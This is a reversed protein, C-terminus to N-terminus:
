IANFAADFTPTLCTTKDNLSSKLKPNSSANIFLFSFLIVDQAIQPGNRLLAISIPAFFTPAFM